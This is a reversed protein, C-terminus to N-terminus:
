TQDIQLALSIARTCRKLELLTNEVEKSQFPWKLARYLNNPTPSATASALKRELTQLHLESDRIAPPLEKCARLTTGHPGELLNKTKQSIYNLATVEHLLRAKDNNSNKVDSAYQVCYGVLKASLDVVAIVNAAIGLGEM